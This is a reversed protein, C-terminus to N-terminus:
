LQRELSFNWVETGQYFDPVGPSTIKLVTQALSNIDRTERGQGSIASVCDPLRKRALSRLIAALFNQFASEYGTNPSISSTHVKAERLAKEMYTGIRSVFEGYAKDPVADACPQATESLGQIRRKM